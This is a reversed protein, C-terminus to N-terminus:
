EPLDVIPDLVDVVAKPDHQRHAVPDALALIEAAGRRRLRLHRLSVACVSSRHDGDGDLASRSCPRASLLPAAALERTDCRDAPLDETFGRQAANWIRSNRASQHPLPCHPTQKAPSLRVPGQWKKPILITDLPSVLRCASRSFAREGAAASLPGRVSSCPAVRGGVGEARSALLPAAPTRKESPGRRNPATARTQGSRRSRRDGSSKATLRVAWCQSFRATRKKHRHRRQALAADHIRHGIGSDHVDGTALPLEPVPHHM